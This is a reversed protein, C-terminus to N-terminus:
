ALNVGQKEEGAADEGDNHMLSVRRVAAPRGKELRSEIELTGDDGSIRM